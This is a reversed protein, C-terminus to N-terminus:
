RVVRCIPGCSLATQQCAFMGSEGSIAVAADERMLSGSACVAVESEGSTSPHRDNCQRTNGGATPTRSGSPIELLETGPAQFAASIGIKFVSYTKTCSRSAGCHTARTPSHSNGANTGSEPGAYWLRSSATQQDKVDASSPAAPRVVWGPGWELSRERLTLQGVRSSAIQTTGNVARTRRRRGSRDLTWVARHPSLAGNAYRDGRHSPASTSSPTASTMCRRSAM